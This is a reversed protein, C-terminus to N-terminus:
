SFSLADGEIINLLDRTEKPIVIRDLEDIKRVGGTTRKM